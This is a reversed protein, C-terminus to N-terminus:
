SVHQIVKELIDILKALKEELADLRPIIRDYYIERMGDQRMQDLDLNGILTGHDEIVQTVARLIEEVM